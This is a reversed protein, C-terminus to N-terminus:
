EIVASLSQTTARYGKGSEETEKVALGSKRGRDEPRKGALRRNPVEIALTVSDNALM